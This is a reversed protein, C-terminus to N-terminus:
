LGAEDFMWTMPLSGRVFPGPPAGASEQLFWDFVRLGAAVSCGSAGGFRLNTELLFCGGGGEEQILQTVSPGMTGPLAELLERVIAEMAPYEVATTVKAQGGEVVVRRRCILGHVQGRRNTYADVSYEPGAVWPQFVPETMAEAVEAAEEAGVGLRMSRSGAGHREKVVWLRRDRRDPPSLRTQIARLGKEECFDHFAQKDDTIAIAEPSSVLVEIGGERLKERRKAWFALEGDRTPILRSIRRSRFAKIWGQTDVEEPRPMRWFHDVVARGNVSEDVDGGWLVWGQSSRGAAERVAAVLSRKNGLSTILIGPAGDGTPDGSRAKEELRDFDSRSPNM